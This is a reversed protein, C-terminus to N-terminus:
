RPAVIKELAVTRLLQALEKSSHELNYKEKVCQRGIYGMRKCLDEDRLLRELSEMWSNQANVLFGNEGDRVIESNFGVASAVVPLSCAMYQILKYGCKGKEWPTNRLPMIGIDCESIKDIETLENWDLCEVDVGPMEIKGGGIVCLTFSNRAALRQIEEKIDMLYKITYTTGIWVIKKRRDKGAKNRSCIALKSRNAYLPFDVVTPVIEVWSANANRAREALYSNGAVVLSAKSMLADLKRGYLRRVWANRHLDYNHFLADDYDLVYNAGGLIAKEAFYPLWPFLEKEIWVLDYASQARAVLNARTAIRSMLNRISYRGSSYRTALTDNDVFPCVSMDIGHERLLPGYQITRM